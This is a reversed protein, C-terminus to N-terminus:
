KTNFHTKAHAYDYTGEVLNNLLSTALPIVEDLYANYSKAKGEFEAKHNQMDDVITKARRLINEAIELKEQCSNYERVCQAFVEEWNQVQQRYASCDPYVTNGDADTDISNRCEELDAQAYELSARANNLDNEACQLEWEAQRKKSELEGVINEAECFKNGLYRLAHDVSQNARTGFTNLSNSLSLLAEETKININPM